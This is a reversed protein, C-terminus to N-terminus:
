SVSQQLSTPHLGLKDATSAQALPPPHAHSVLLPEALASALQTRSQAAHWGGSEPVGPRWHLKPAVPQEHVSPM